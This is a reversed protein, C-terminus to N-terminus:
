TYAGWTPRASPVLRPLRQRCCSRVLRVSDLPTPEACRPFYTELLWARDSRNLKITGNMVAWGWACASVRACVRVCSFGVFLGTHTICCCSPSRPPPRVTSRIEQLASRATSFENEALVKREEAEALQAELEEAEGALAGRRNRVDAIEAQKAAMEELSIEAEVSELLEELPRLPITDSAIVELTKNGSLEPNSVCTGVLEAVQLWLIHPALADISGVRVPHWNM